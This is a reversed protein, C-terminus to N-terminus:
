MLKLVGYAILGFAFFMQTIIAFWYFLPHEARSVDFVDFFDFFWLPDAEESRLGWLILVLFGSGISLAIWGIM